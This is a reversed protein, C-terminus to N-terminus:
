GLTNRLASIVRNAISPKDEPLKVEEVDTLKMTGSAVVPTSYPALEREAITGSIRTGVPLQEGQVTM